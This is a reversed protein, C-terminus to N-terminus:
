KYVVPEWKGFREEITEKLSLLFRTQAELLQPM